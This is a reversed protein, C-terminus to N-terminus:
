FDLCKGGMKNRSGTHSVAKGCIFSWGCGTRGKECFFQFDESTKSPSEILEKNNSL